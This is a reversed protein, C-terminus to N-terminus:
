HVEFVCFKSPPRCLAVTSPSAISHLEVVFLFAPSHFALTGRSPAFFLSDSLHHQSSIKENSRFGLLSQPFPNPLCSVCRIATISTRGPSKKKKRKEKKKKTTLRGPNVLRSIQSHRDFHMHGFQGPLSIRCIPRSPNPSKSCSLM